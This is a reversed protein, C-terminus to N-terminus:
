SEFFGVSAGVWDKNKNFKVGVMRGKTLRVLNNVVRGEPQNKEWVMMMRIECKAPGTPTEIVPAYEM